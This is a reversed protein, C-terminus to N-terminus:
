PDNMSEAPTGREELIRGRGEPVRALVRLVSEVLDPVSRRTDLVLHNGPPFEAVPEFQRVQEAHLEPRGDSLSEGSRSRRDLRALATAPPCVCEIFLIDVGSRRALGRIQERHRRRKFTADVLVSAGHALAQGARSALEDYVREDMIETYPGAGFGATRDRGALEQRVADSQFLELGLEQSLALALTSKGSGMVGSVAVLRPRYFSLAHFNALQLYRRAAQFFPHRQEGSARGAATLAAVKARVCARYSTYFGWLDDGPEDGSRRVYRERLRASLEPAGQFELDMALFALEDAVDNHRYRDNFEVCDFVVPTDTLCIHEARLDGHGDRIYGGELRRRFREPYLRVFQLHAAELRNIQARPLDADLGRLAAFNDRLNKLWAGPSADQLCEPNAVATAYFPLLVDLVRDIDATTARGARILRDLMRDEPLRRMQVAFEL